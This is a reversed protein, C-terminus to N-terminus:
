LAKIINDIVFKFYSYDAPVLKFDENRHTTFYKFKELSLLCLGDVEEDQKKLEDLTVELKSLFVNQFECDKIGNPHINISKRIDIKHLQSAKISLGIEEEVERLAADEITEGAMVHGAASVDWYNPFTEKNVGRKQFLVQGSETYFWIHVTPHFYGKKHAESKLCIKGTPKGLEDLINLYENEM